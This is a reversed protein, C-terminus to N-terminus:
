ARKQEHWKAYGGNGKIKDSLRPKCLRRPMRQDLAQVGAIDKVGREEILQRMLSKEKRVM